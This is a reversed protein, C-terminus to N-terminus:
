RRAVRGRVYAAIRDELEGTSWCRKTDASTGQTPRGMALVSTSLRTGGEERATARTTIEAQIRYQDAAESGTATRGCDFFQSAREGGLDRTIVTQRNGIVRRSADVHQVPIGVSQYADALASWVAQVPADVVVARAEAEGSEIVQGGHLVETPREPGQYSSGPACGNLALAAMISVFALQKM